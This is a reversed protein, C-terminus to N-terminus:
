ISLQSFQDVLSQMVDQGGTVDKINDILQTLQDQPMNNLTEMVDTALKQVYDKHKDLCTMTVNLPNPNDHLMQGIDDMMESKLAEQMHKSLQPNSDILKTMNNINDDNIDITSLVASKDYVNLCDIINPCLAFVTPMDIICGRATEFNDYEKLVQGNLLANKRKAWYRKFSAGSDTGEKLQQIYSRVIPYKQTLQENRSLADWLIMESSM